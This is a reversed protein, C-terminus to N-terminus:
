CCHHHLNPSAHDRDGMKEGDREVEAGRCESRRRERARHLRGHATYRREDAEAHGGMDETEEIENPVM